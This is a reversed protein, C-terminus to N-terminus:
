VTIIKGIAIVPGTAKGNPAGSAPEPTIALTSGDHFHARMNAPVVMLTAHDGAVIGLSRAKGDAPIIWLEPYLAGTKLSVPTLLMQGTKSDYRATVASSGTESSMAAIMPAAPTEPATTVPVNAPKFFLLAAMIAAATMAAFSLGQWFRVRSISSDQLTASPIKGSIKTWIHDPVAVDPGDLMPLLRGRWADVEDAFARDSAIRAVAIATDASNTLGLAFEAAFAIDDESLHTM